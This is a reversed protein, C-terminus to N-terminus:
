RDWEPGLVSSLLHNDKAIHILKSYISSGRFCNSLKVHIFIEDQRPAADVCQMLAAQLFAGKTGDAAFSPPSVIATSSPSNSEQCRSTM